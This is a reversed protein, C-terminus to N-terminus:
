INIPDQSGVGYLNMLIKFGIPKSEMHIGRSEPGPDGGYSNRGNEPGPEM